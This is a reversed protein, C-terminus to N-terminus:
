GLEWTIIFPEEDRYGEAFRKIREEREEGAVEFETGDCKSIALRALPMRLEEPTDIFVRQGKHPIYDPICTDKDWDVHM